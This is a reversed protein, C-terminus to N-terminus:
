VDNKVGEDYIRRLKIRVETGQGVSSFIEFIDNREFLLELREKVNNIGLGTTHGKHPTKETKSLIKGLIDEGIGVGNDKIIIYIDSVDQYCHLLVYGGDEKGEIGHMIANEIIPQLTLCPVNINTIDCEIKKVFELRDAFRTKQIFLYEDLNSIEQELTVVKNLSGLSYRLMKSMSGIMTVTREADELYAIKAIVNLTNFMFHPNVQSQLAMLEAEKLLSKTRENNVEEEKLKREVDMKENLDSIYHKISRTMQKFASTLVSMEESTADHSLEPMDFNGKSIQRAAITLVKIPKLLNDTIFFISILIAFIIIIFIIITIIEANRKNTIFARYEQRIEDIQYDYISKVNVSIKSLLSESDFILKGKDSEEAFILSNIGNSYEATKQKLEILMQEIKKNNVDSQLGGIIENMKEKNANLSTIYNRSGTGKFKQLIEANSDVIGGLQNIILVNELLQNYKDFFTSERFYFYFGSAGLIIVILVFFLIIQNRLSSTGLKLNMKLDM